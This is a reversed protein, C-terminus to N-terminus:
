RRGAAVVPRTKVSRRQAQSGLRQYFVSLNHFGRRKNRETGRFIVVHIGISRCVTCLCSDWPRDSLVERYMEERRADPHHVREYALVHELATDVPLMGSGYERLASLCARELRLVQEQKLEGARIRAQLAPNGEVQPVRIALYTRNLTYYNDKGDKFAQRMPSTSDFSTVGYKQFHAIQACRTVGLLHLQVNSCRVSDISELCRLIAHTKLPVMGGLAIRSYGMAQLKEVAVSYSRPSWGQAVGLPIFRVDGSRCLRLFESALELTIEQRRRWEAPVPDLGPLGADFSAQYGLIVHDVSIGYDFQCDVYFDAVDEPRFPPVEERIYSFAGCDGMTELLAPLRFFSRAGQRRLRQRQALSYRSGDAGNGDVIAKSILIGDYPPKALLEHPYVDDRQRIRWESRSEAEFDFSPDVTDQSDAFFFKM